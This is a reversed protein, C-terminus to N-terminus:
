DPQSRDQLHAAARTQDKAKDEDGGNAAIGKACTDIVIM